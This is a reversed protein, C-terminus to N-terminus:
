ASMACSQSSSCGAGPPPRRTCCSSRGCPGAWCRPPTTPVANATEHTYAQWEADDRAAAARPWTEPIVTTVILDTDASRALMAALHLVSASRSAPNLGVLLSM